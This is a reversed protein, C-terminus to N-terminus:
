CFGPVQQTVFRQPDFNAQEDLLGVGERRLAETIKNQEAIQHQSVGAGFLDGILGVIAPMMGM